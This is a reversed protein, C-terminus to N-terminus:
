DNKYVEAVILNFPTVSIYRSWHPNNSISNLKINAAFIPNSFTIAVSVICDVMEVYILNPLKNHGWVAVPMWDGDSTFGPWSNTVAEDLIYLPPFNGPPNFWYVRIQHSIPQSVFLYSGLVDVDTVENQGGVEIDNFNYVLGGTLNFCQVFSKYSTTYSVFVYSNGFFYGTALSSLKATLQINSFADCKFNSAKGNLISCNSVYLIFNAPGNQVQNFVYFTTPDVDDFWIYSYVIRSANRFVTWTANAPGPNLLTFIQSDALGEVSELNKAIKEGEIHLEEEDKEEEETEEHRPFHAGM